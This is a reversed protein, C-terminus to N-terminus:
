IDHALISEDIVLETRVKDMSEVEMTIEHQLCMERTFALAEDGFPDSPTM